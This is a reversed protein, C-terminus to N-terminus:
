KDYSIWKQALLIPTKYPDLPIGSIDKYAQLKKLNEHYLLTDTMAGCCQGGLYMGKINLLNIVGGVCSGGITAINGTLNNINPDCSIIQSDLGVLEQSVNETLIHSQTM